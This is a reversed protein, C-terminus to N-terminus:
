SGSPSPGPSLTAACGITRPPWSSACSIVGLWRVRRADPVIDAIPEGRATLTGREQRWLAQVEDHNRDRGFQLAVFFSTDVFRM